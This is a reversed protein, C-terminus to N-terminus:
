GGGNLKDITEEASFQVLKVRSAEFSAFAALHVDSERDELAALVREVLERDRDEVEPELYSRLHARVSELHGEFAEAHERVGKLWFDLFRDSQVETLRGGGALEATVLEAKRILREREKLHPERPISEVSGKPIQSPAPPEPRPERPAENVGGKRVKGEKITTM